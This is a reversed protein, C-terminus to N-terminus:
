SFGFSSPCNDGSRHGSMTGTLKELEKKDKHGQPSLLFYLNYNCIWNIVMWLIWTKWSYKRGYFNSIHITCTCILTSSIEFGAGVCIKSKNGALM